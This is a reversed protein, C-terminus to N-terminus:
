NRGYGAHSGSLGDRGAEYAVVVGSSKADLEEMAEDRWRLLLRLLEAEDPELKKLPQRAVGPVTGAVLWSSLSLEIVAILTDGQGVPTLSKSLDDTQRM